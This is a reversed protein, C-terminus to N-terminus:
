RPDDEQEWPQYIDPIDDRLIALQNYGERVAARVGLVYAHRVAEQVAETWEEEPITWVSHKNIFPTICPVGHQNKRKRVTLKVM